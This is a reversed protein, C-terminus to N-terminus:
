PYDQGTPRVIVECLHVHPPQMVVFAIVRAVDAPELLKGFKQVSKGFNEQTYGAVEQFESVVIAPKITTVRVQQGCIERRLAEAMGTIAWKSSGYFGSFPSVHHGAVSSLAIIDGSKQRVMFEAARRMLHAAGIVNVQYMAEWQRRDSSLLGGALGRGANAVVIDLRGGAPSKKAIKRSWALTAEFLADIDSPKGADSTVALVQGGGIARLRAAVKELQDKRRASIVVAAGAALLAEAVAEGIGSSTGTILAVKGVLPGTPVTMSAQKSKRIKNAM